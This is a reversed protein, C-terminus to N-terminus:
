KRLCKLSCWYDDSYGYTIAHYVYGRKTAKKGCEKCILSAKEQSETKIQSVAM